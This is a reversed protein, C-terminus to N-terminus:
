MNEGFLAKRNDEIDANDILKTFWKEWYASQATQLTRTRLSDKEAAFGDTNAPIREKFEIIAAGNQTLVPPAFRKAESLSFATGIFAADNGMGPLRGSRSFYGSETVENGSAKAADALSQGSMLENYVRQAVALASARQRKEILKRQIVPYVDAFEAVGEPKVRDKRLLYIADTRDKLDSFSGDAASFLWKELEPDRGFVGIPTDRGVKRAPDSLIKLEAALTTANAATAESKFRTARAMLAAVTEDSMQPKILIHAAEVEDLEGTKRTGTRKIIHYGFRTKIPPSIQGDQMAFSASDFERVMAGRAFFGLSGGKGRGSPDETHENALTEFDAGADLQAKLDLAKQLARQDDEPSSEKVLRFTTYYAQEPERFESPNADYYARVEASDIETPQVPFKSYPILVYDVKVRENERIYIDQLEADSVRVMSVVYDQLKFTMLRPRMMVELQRWLDRFQPDSFAQLYKNYDFRGETLFPELGQVDQPPYRRLFDVMEADTITLGLREVQEQQLYSSVFENWAQQRAQRYDSETFEKDPSQQRQQDILNDAVRAFNEYPIEKGNIKGVVNPGMGGSRSGTLDMGWAFIITGVFAIVLIWIIIKTNDRLVQMM